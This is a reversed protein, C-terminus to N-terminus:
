LYEVWNFQAKVDEAKWKVTTRVGRAGKRTKVQTLELLKRIPHYAWVDIESKSGASRASIWGDARYRNVIERERKTSRNYAHNKGAM